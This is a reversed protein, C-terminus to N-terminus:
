GVEREREVAGLMGRLFRGLSDVPEALGLEHWSALGHQGNLAKLLGLKHADGAVLEGELGHGIHQAFVFGKQVHGHPRDQHPQSKGLGHAHGRQGDVKKSATM